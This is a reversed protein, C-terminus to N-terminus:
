VFLDQTSTQFDLSQARSWSSWGPSQEVCVSLLHRVGSTWNDVDAIQACAVHRYRCFPSTLTRRYLQGTHFVPDSLTSGVRSSVSSRALVAQFNGEGSCRALATRHLDRKRCQQHSSAASDFSSCGRLVRSLPSLLCKPAGGLLGNCYDLRTLILARVLAQSSDVTLSRRISQLQRIHFFCTRTLRSVHDTYSMGSDLRRVSEEM